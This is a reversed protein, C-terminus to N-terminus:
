ISVKRESELRCFLIQLISEIIQIIVQFVSLIREKHLNSKRQLLKFSLVCLKSRISLVQYEHSDVLCLVEYVSRLWALSIETNQSICKRCYSICRTKSMVHNGIGECNITCVLKIFIYVWSFTTIIFCRTTDEYRLCYREGTGSFQFSCCFYVRMNGWSLSYIFFCRSPSIM